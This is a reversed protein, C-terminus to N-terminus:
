EEEEPNEPIFTSNKYREIWKDNEMDRLLEFANEGYCFDSIRKIGYKKLIEFQQKSPITPISDNTSWGTPMTRSTRYPYEFYRLKWLEEVINPDKVGYKEFFNEGNPNAKSNTRGAAQYVFADQTLQRYSFKGDPKQHILYYRILGNFGPQLTFGLYYKDVNETEEGFTVTNEQSFSITISIIILLSTFINKKQYM